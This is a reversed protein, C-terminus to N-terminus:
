VSKTLHLKLWWVAANKGRLMAEREGEVEESGKTLCGHAVGPLFQWDFRIRNAQLKKWTYLRLHENFPHDFEPALVQVPARMGDADSEQFLSPHGAIGCDILPGPDSLEESGLRFVAWGGFCFGIAAVFSYNERLAQACRVIEPERQQRGNRSLFGAMDIEGFRGQLVLDQPLKEGGFFDPVYVTVGAERAYHDALLRANHWGWGLADHIYLLAASPNSGEAVYVNLDALKSEQGSPTGDWEFGRLCCESFGSMKIIYVQKRQDDKHGISLTIISPFSAFLSHSV